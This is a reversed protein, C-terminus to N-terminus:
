EKGEHMPWKAGHRHVGMPPGWMPQGMDMPRMGKMTGKININSAYMATLKSAIIDGMGADKLEKYFNGVAKGIKQGKEPDYMVNILKELLTPLEEELIKAIERIKEIDLTPRDGMM